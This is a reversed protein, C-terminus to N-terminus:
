QGKVRRNAENVAKACARAIPALGNHREAAIRRLRMRVDRLIPDYMGSGDTEGAAMCLKYREKKARGAIARLFTRPHKYLLDSYFTGLGESMAGDSYPWADLLSKLVAKDGQRYSNILFDAAWDGCDKSRPKSACGRLGALARSRTM